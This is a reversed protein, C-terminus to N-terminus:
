ATRLMRWLVRLKPKKGTMLVGLRFLKGGLKIGIWAGLLLAALALGLDWYPVGGARWPPGAAGLRMMMTIPATFPIYSLVRALTGLPEDTILFWTVAPPLVALLSWLSAMQQSEKLTNGLAGTGAMLTGITLYGTMFFLLCLLMLPIDPSALLATAVAAAIGVSSWVVLQILGAAGLGLVKGM